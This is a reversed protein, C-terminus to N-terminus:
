QISLVQTGARDGFDRFSHPANRIVRMSYHSDREGHRMADGIVGAKPRDKLGLPIDHGLPWCIPSTYFAKDISGNGFLEVHYRREQNKGVDHGFDLGPTM